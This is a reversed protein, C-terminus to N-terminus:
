DRSIRMHAMQPQPGSIYQIASNLLGMIYQANHVGRSRDEVGAILYNWVAGASDKSTSVSKPLGTTGDVLGATVLKARLAAVLVDV